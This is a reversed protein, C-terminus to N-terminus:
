KYFDSNTSKFRKHTWGYYFPLYNNINTEFINIWDKYNSGQIVEIKAVYSGDQFILTPHLITLDNHKTKLWIPLKNWNCNKNFFSDKIHPTNFRPDQDWMFAFSYNEHILTLIKRPNVLEIAYDYPDRTRKIHSYILKNKIPLVTAKLKIGNNILYQCFLEHNGLHSSLLLSKKPWNSLIDKTKQDNVIIPIKLNFIQHTIDRSLNFLLNIYLKETFNIGCHIMNTKITKRKWRFSYAVLFLLYKFHKLM